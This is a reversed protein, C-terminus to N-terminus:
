KGDAKVKQFFAPAGYRNFDIEVDDGPRLDDPIRVNTSVKLIEVKRGINNTTEVMPDSWVVHILHREGSKDQYQWKKFKEIGFVKAKQLM